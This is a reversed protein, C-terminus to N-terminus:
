RNIIKVGNSSANLWLTVVKGCDLAQFEYWTSGDSLKCGRSSFATQGLDFWARRTTDTPKSFLDVTKGRTTQIEVNCDFYKEITKQGTAKAAVTISITQSSLSKGNRDHLTVTIKTTGSSKGTVTLSTKGTSYNVSGWSASCVSNNQIGYSLYYLGDIRAFTISVTKSDGSTLSLSSPSFTICPEANNSGKYKPRLYIVEIRGNSVSSGAGDNYTNPSIGRCVRNGYNGEISTSNNEMIGVHAYYNDSVRRYVVIDGAQPSSVRKGGANLIGNAMVYVSATKPIAASEGAQNACWSVFAACWWYDYSGNITGNWRTYKNPSGSVGVEAKAIRVMDNPGAALATTPLLTFVVCIALLISLAKKMTKKM